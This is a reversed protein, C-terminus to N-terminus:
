TTSLDWSIASASSLFMWSFRITLSYNVRGIFGGRLYKTLNRKFYNGCISVLVTITLTTFCMLLLIAPRYGFYDLTVQILLFCPNLWSAINLIKLLTQSKGPTDLLKDAMQIRRNNLSFGFNAFSFVSSHFVSFCLVLYTWISPFLFSTIEQILYSFLFLM